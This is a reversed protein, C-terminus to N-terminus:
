PAVTGGEYSREKLETKTMKRVRNTAKNYVWGMVIVSEEWCKFPEHLALLVKEGNVSSSCITAMYAHWYCYDKAKTLSGGLDVISETGSPSWIMCYM